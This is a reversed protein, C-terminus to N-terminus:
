ATRGHEHAFGAAFLVVGAAAVGAVVGFWAAVAAVVLVAGVVQLIVALLM